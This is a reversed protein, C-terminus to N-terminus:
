AESVPPDDSADPRGQSPKAEIRKHEHPNKGTIIGLALRLRDKYSLRQAIDTIVGLMAHLHAHGPPLRSGWSVAYGIRGSDPNTHGVATIVITAIAPDPECIYRIGNDRHASADASADFPDRAMEPVRYLPYQFEWKSVM